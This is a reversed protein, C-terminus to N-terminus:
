NKSARAAEVMSWFMAWSIYFNANSGDDMMVVIHVGEDTAGVATFKVNDAQMTGIDEHWLSFLYSPWNGV